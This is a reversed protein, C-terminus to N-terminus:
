RWSRSTGTAGGGRAGRPVGAPRPRDRHVARGGQHEGAGLAYALYDAATTVFEQGASVVLNFRLGRDNHLMRRSRRVRTASSRSAARRCTRRSTSGARGCGGSSTSSGWATGAASRWAPTAPSRPWGSPWRRARGRAAGRLRQRLDGGVARRGGRGGVAAGRAGREARRHDGPRGPGPLEAISAFCRHGLVEEYRPNVPFIGGRYGGEMLELMMQEGFSGPRASAGVVAVSEAELMARLASRDDGDAIPKPEPEPSVGQLALLAQSAQPRGHDAQLLQLAPIGTVGGGGHTASSAQYLGPIPTRYDAYGAAPRM